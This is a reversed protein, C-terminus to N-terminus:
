LMDPAAEGTYVVSIVAQLSSAAYWWIRTDEGPAHVEMYIGLIWVVASALLAAAPTAAVLWSCGWVVWL